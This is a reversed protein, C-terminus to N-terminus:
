SVEVGDHPPAPEYGPFNPAPPKPATQKQPYVSVTPRVRFSVGPDVMEALRKVMGDNQQQLWDIQALLHKIEADKAECVSCGFLKM